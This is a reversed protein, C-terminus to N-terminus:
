RLLLGVNNSPLHLWRITPTKPVDRQRLPAMIKKPGDGYLLNHITPTAFQSREENTNLFWFDLIIALFDHSPHSDEKRKFVNPILPPPSRPRPSLSPGKVIPPRELLEKISKDASSFLTKGRTDYSGTNAGRTLLFEVIQKHGKASAIALATMGEASRRDIEARGKELLLRVIPLHNNIAALHLATLGRSNLHNSSTGQDLLRNVVDENGVQAAEALMVSRARGVVNSYIIKSSRRKLPAGLMLDPRGKKPARLDVMSPDSPLTEKKLFLQVISEFGRAAALDLATSQHKDNTKADARAGNNLLWEVVELNGSQTAWHLATRGHEDSATVDDGPNEGTAAKAAQEVLKLNGFHAAVMIRTINRPPLSLSFTRFWYIQFWTWFRPTLDCLARVSDLLKGPERAYRFHEAWHKSAYELFVYSSTYNQIKLEVDGDVEDHLIGLPSTGFGPSKLYSVCIEALLANADVLNVISSEQVSTKQSQEILFVRATQHVFVVKSHVIRVFVGCHCMVFKQDIIINHIKDRIDSSCETLMAINLEELTLPEAVAVIIQLLRRTIAPEPCRALSMEYTKNVRDSEGDLPSLDIESQGTVFEFAFTELWGLALSLWLFSGNHRALLYDTIKRQLHTTLINSSPIITQVRTTVYLEISSSLNRSSLTLFRMKTKELRKVAEDLAFRTTMIIKLYGGSKSREEEYDTYFRAMSNIFSIRDAEDCESLGDMILIVNGCDPDAVVSSLIRWLVSAQNTFAQGQARYENVAHHILRPNHIEQHRTFLQHLIACLSSSPSGNERTNSNFFFYCVTSPLLLQSEERRLEDALYASLVSKGSGEPGSIWLFSSKQEDRWQQYELENFIWACAQRMPPPIRCRDEEYAVKALARLISQVEGVFLSSDTRSLVQAM